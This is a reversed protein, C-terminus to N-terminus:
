KRPNFYIVRGNFLHLEAQFSKALYRSFENAKALDGHTADHPVIVQIYHQGSTAEKGVGIVLYKYLHPDEGKLVLWTVTGDSQEDMTYPFTASAYDWNLQQGTLAAQEIYQELQQKVDELRIEQLTSGEVLKIMASNNRKTM